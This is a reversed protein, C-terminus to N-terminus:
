EYKLRMRIHLRDTALPDHRMHLAASITYLSKSLAVLYITEFNSSECIQFQSSERLGGRSCVKFSNCCRCSVCSIM